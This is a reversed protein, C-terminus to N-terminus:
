LENGIDSKECRMRIVTLHDKEVVDLALSDPYDVLAAAVYRVFEQLQDLSVGSEEEINEPREARRSRRGHRRRGRGAAPEDGSQAPSEPEEMASPDPCAAAEMSESLEESEVSNGFLKKLFSFAM